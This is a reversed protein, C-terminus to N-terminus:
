AFQLRREPLGPALMAPVDEINRQAHEAVETLGFVDDLLREDPQLAGAEVLDVVHPRPQEGDDAAQAEILKPRGPALALLREVVAGVTWCHEVADGGAAATSGASRTVRSSETRRANVTM